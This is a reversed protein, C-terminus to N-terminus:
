FKYIVDFQLRKLYPDKCNSLDSGTCANRVGAPVLEPNEWPNALRGIWATFSGTISSHFLYEAQLKHQLLNTSSRVDSENFASIVADKEIRAFTYNFQWDKAERKRGFTLETWYGSRERPGRVNNVFNFLITTPFRPLTDLDLKM